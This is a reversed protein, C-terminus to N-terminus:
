YDGLPLQDGYRSLNVAQPGSHYLLWDHYQQGLEESAEEYVRRMEQLWYPRNGTPEPPLDYNEGVFDSAIMKWDEKLLYDPLSIPGLEMNLLKEEIDYQDQISISYMREVLLRSNLGPESIKPSSYNHRLGETMWYQDYFNYLLKKKIKVDATLELLRKSAAWVIPCRGYQHAMSMVKAKLLQMRVSNKCGNWKRNLWGLSVLIYMPDKVVELDECDYVNGCFSADGPRLFRVDKVKWGLAKYEEVTPTAEPPFWRSLSDDGEVVCVVHAKKKYAIFRIVMLNMLTNGLSTNMEGSMRKARVLLSGWNRMSLANMKYTGGIFRGQIYNMFKIVKHYQSYSGYVYEYCEGEIEMIWSLFHAEFSTFDKSSVLVDFSGFLEDLYKPRDEVPVTKIVEPLLAFQDTIKQFFPGLVAKAADDRANIWRPAKLEEAPEDKLFSGIRVAPPLEGTQEFQEYATRIEEKRSQSIILGSLWEEFPDWSEEVIPTFIKKIEEKVFARFEEQLTKEVPPPRFAARKTAGLLIFEGDKNDWRPLVANEIHFALSTSVISREANRVTRARGLVLEAIPPDEDM